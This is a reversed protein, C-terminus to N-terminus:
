YKIQVVFLFQDPVWKSEGEITDIEKMNRSKRAKKEHQEGRAM